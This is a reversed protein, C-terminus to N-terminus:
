RALFRSNHQGRCASEEGAFGAESHCATTKQALPLAVPSDGENSM